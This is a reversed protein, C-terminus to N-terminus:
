TSEEPWWWPHFSQVNEFVDWQLFDVLAVIQLNNMDTIVKSEKWPNRM